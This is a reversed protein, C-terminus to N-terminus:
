LEGRRKKTKLATRMAKGTHAKKRMKKGLSGKMMKSRARDVIHIDIKGKKISVRRNSGALSARKKNLMKAQARTLKGAEELTELKTISEKIEDEDEEDEDDEEDDEEDEDFFVDELDAVMQSAVNAPILSAYGMLITLGADFNEGETDGTEEVYADWIDNLTSVLESEQAAELIQKFSVM